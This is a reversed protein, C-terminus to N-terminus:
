IKYESLSFTNYPIKNTITYVTIKSFVFITIPISFLHNLVLAIGTTGGTILGNPLIFLVVALAYLSHLLM